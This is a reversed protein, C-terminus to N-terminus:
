WFLSPSMCDPFNVNLNEYVNPGHYNADKHGVKLKWPGLKTSFNEYKKHRQYWKRDVKQLYVPLPSEITSFFIDHMTYKFTLKLNIEVNLEYVNQAVFLQFDM